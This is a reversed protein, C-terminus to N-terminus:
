HDWGVEEPEIDCFLFHAGGQATRALPKEALTRQGDRGRAEALQEREQAVMDRLGLSPEHDEFGGAHKVEMPGGRQGAGAVGDQDEVREHRTTEVRHFVGDAVVLGVRDVRPRETGDPSGMALFQAVFVAEGRVRLLEGQLPQVGHAFGQAAREGVQLLGVAAQELQAERLQVAEQFDVAGPNAGEQCLCGGRLRDGAFAEAGRCFSQRRRPLAASSCARAASEM